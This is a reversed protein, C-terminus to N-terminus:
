YIYLSSLSRTKIILWWRCEIHQDYSNWQAKRLVKYEETIEIEKGSRRKFRQVAQEKKYDLSQGHAIMSM